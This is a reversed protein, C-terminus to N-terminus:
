ERTYLTLKDQERDVKMDFTWALVEALDAVSGAKFEGVIRQSALGNSGIQINANFWRNLQPIADRLTLGDIVLVGREFAFMADKTAAVRISGDQAVVGEYLPTIVTNAVEVKGEKVAVVLEKDNAYSRVVFRTGLVRAIQGGAKVVFPTGKSHNVTFMAEGDLSITRNGAAYDAPIEIRSAVNLTVTSGDPLTITSRQGAQTSYVSALRGLENELRNEGLQWGLGLILMLSAVASVLMWRSMFAKSARPKGANLMVSRAIRAADTQSLDYRQESQKHEAVWLEVQEAESASASDSLYKELLPVPLRTPEFREVRNPQSLQDQNM